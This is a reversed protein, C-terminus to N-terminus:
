KVTIPTHMNQEYHGPTHCALELAGAAYPKDFTITITQTAGVPLKDIPIMALAMKDYDQMNMGGMQAGDSKVPPMIMFEHDLAGANTVVFEYPQGATFETRSAEIKFETLKVEVKEPAKPGCATLGISLVIGAIMGRLILGKM